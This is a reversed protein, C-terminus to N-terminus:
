YQLIQQYDLMGGPGFKAEVVRVLKWGDPRRVFGLKWSSGISQGTQGTGRWTCYASFCATARDTDVNISFGNVKADDIQWRQLRDRLDTLWAPKDLGHDEFEPALYTSLTDVEGADVAMAMAWVAAQIRERDTQVVHQIWLLAAALAISIWIARRRGATPRRRYMAVVVALAAALLMVLLVASEFFLYRLLDIM